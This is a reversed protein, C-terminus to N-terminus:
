WHEVNGLRTLLNAFRTETIIGHEIQENYLITM